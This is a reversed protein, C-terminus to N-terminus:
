FLNSRQLFYSVQVIVIDEGPDSISAFRLQFVPHSALVIFYAEQPILILSHSALVQGIINIMNSFTARFTVSLADRTGTAGNLLISPWATPLSWRCLPVYRSISDPTVFFHSTIIAGDARQQSSPQLSDGTM